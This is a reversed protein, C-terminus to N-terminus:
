IISQNIDNTRFTNTIAYRYTDHSHRNFEPDRSVTTLRMALFFLGCLAVLLINCTAFGCFYPSVSSVKRLIWGM